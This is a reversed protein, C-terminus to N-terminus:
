RHLPTDRYCAFMKDEPCFSSLPHYEIPLSLNIAENFLTRVDEYNFKNCFPAYAMRLKTLHIQRRNIMNSIMGDNTPAAGSFGAPV